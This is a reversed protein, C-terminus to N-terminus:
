VSEGDWDMRDKIYDARTGSVHTLSEEEIKDWALGYLRRHNSTALEINWAIVKISRELAVGDTSCTGLSYVCFKTLERLYLDALLLIKNLIGVEVIVAHNSAPTGPTVTVTADKCVMTLDESEGGLASYDNLRSITVRRIRAALIRDYDYRKVEVNVSDFIEEEIEDIRELELDRKGLSTDTM